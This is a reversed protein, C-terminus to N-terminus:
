DQRWVYWCPDGFEHGNEMWTWNLRNLTAKSEDAMAEPKPAGFVCLGRDSFWVELTKPDRAGLEKQQSFERKLVEFAQEVQGMTWM